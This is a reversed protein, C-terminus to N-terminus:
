DYRHMECAPIFIDARRCIQNNGQLVCSKPTRGGMECGKHPGAKHPPCTKSTGAGTAVRICYTPAGVINNSMYIVTYNGHVSFVFSNTSFAGQSFRGGGGQKQTHVPIIPNVPSNQPLVPIIASLPPICNVASLHFHATPLFSADRDMLQHNRKPRDRSFYTPAGVNTNESIPVYHLLLLLFQYLTYPLLQGPRDLARNVTLPQHNVAWLLLPLVLSPLVSLVSIPVCLVCLFLLPMRCLPVAFVTPAEVIQNSPSTLARQPFESISRNTM